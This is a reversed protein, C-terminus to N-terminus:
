EKSVWHNFESIFRNIVEPKFTKSAQQTNLSKVPVIGSLSNCIFVADAALVDEVSYYGVQLQIRHKQMFTLMAERLVGAVGAEDVCPTHWGTRNSFWYVNAASSEIVRDDTDVVLLDDLDQDFLERKILVQELRNLHKIGALLPQKGLKLSALGLSIGRNKWDDYHRPYPHISIHLRPENCGIPSYGRGGEGRSILVKLAHRGSQHKAIIDDLQIKLEDIECFPIALRHCDQALRAFHLDILQPRGFLLAITTFCGDGYNAARDNQTFVPTNFDRTV